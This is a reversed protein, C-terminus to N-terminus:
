RWISWSRWITPRRRVSAPPREALPQWEAAITSLCLTKLGAALHPPEAIPTAM